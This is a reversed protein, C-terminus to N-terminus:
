RLVWFVVQLLICFIGAFVCYYGIKAQQPANRLVFGFDKLYAKVKAMSLTKLDRNLGDIIQKFTGSM